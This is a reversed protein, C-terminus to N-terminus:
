VRPGKIGSGQLYRTRIMANAQSQPHFVLATKAKDIAAEKLAKPSPTKTKSMAPFAINAPAQDPQLRLLTM